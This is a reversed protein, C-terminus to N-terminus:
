NTKESKVLMPIKLLSIGEEQLKKEESETTVGRINRPESVGYHIKLSEKALDVGVDEFNEEVFKQLTELARGVDEPTVSETSRKEIPNEAAINSSKCRIPSLIKRIQRSTKLIVGTRSGARSHIAAVPV